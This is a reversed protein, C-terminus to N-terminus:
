TATAAEITLAGALRLTSATAVAGWGITHVRTRSNWTQPPRAPSPHPLVPTTHPHSLLAAPSPLPPTPLLSFLLSLSSCLTILIDSIFSSEHYQVISPGNHLVFYDRYIYLWSSMYYELNVKLAIFFIM